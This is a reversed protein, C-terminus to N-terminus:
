LIQGFEEFNIAETKNRLRRVGIEVATMIAASVDAEQWQKSLASNSMAANVGNANPSCRHAADM